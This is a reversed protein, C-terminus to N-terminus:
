EISLNDESYLIQKKEEDKGSFLMSYMRKMMRSLLQGGESKTTILVAGNPSSVIIDVNYRLSVGELESAFDQDYLSQDLGAEYISNFASLMGDMRDKLYVKKLFVSNMFLSAMITVACVFVIVFIIQTRISTVKKKLNEKM